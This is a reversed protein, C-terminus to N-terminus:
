RRPRSNKKLWSWLNARWDYFLDAQSLIMHIYPDIFISNFLKTVYLRIVM